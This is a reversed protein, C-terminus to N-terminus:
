LLLTAPMPITVCKKLMKIAAEETLGILSMLDGARLIVPSLDGMLQLMEAEIPQAGPTVKVECRGPEDIICISTLPEKVSDDDEALQMAVDSGRRTSIAVPQVISEDKQPGMNLEASLTVAANSIDETVGFVVETANTSSKESSPKTVTGDEGGISILSPSM